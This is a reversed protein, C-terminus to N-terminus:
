VRVGGPSGKAGTRGGARMHARWSELEQADPAPPGAALLSRAQAQLQEARGDRSALVIGNAYMWLMTGLRNAIDATCFEVFSAPTHVFLEVLRGGHRLTERFTEAECSEQVVVLDLDLDSSVTARGAAVSGALFAADATPFRVAAYDRALTVLDM